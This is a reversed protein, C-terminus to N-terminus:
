QNLRQSIKDVLGMNVEQEAQLISYCFSQSDSKGHSKILVGNLGLMSAGRCVSPILESELQKLIPLAAVGVIKTMLQKQFAEKVMDILIGVVGESTKIAINGTFGDTVIVDLKGAFLEHGEIFGQYNLNSENKLTESVEKVLQNGKADETGVNLLGVQPNEIRFLVEALTAGMKAFQFLQVSTCDVNAGLDLILSHGSLTPVTAALAPRDLGKMTRLLHKGLVMFAGTNGSSVCADAKSDKVLEISHRLSTQNKLRLVKAPSLDIPIQHDTHVVSVRDPLNSSPLYNNIIHTNGVLIVHLSPSQKLAQFVAPVTALPGHDGGMADVAVIAM